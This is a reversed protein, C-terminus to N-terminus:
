NYQAAIINIARQLSGNYFFMKLLLFIEFDVFCYFLLHM